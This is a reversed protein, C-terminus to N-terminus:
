RYMEWTPIGSFLNGTWTFSDFYVDPDAGNSTGGDDIEDLIWCDNILADTVTGIPASDIKVEVDTGVQTFEIQHWGLSRTPGVLVAGNDESAPTLSNIYYNGPAAVGDVALGMYRHNGGAGTNCGIGGVRGDVVGSYHGDSASSVMTDYFWGSFYQFDTLGVREPDITAFSRTVDPILSSVSQTGQQAQSSDAAFGAFNANWPNLWNKEFGTTPTECGDTETPLAAVPCLGGFMVLGVVTIAAVIDQKM